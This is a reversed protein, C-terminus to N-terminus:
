RAIVAGTMSDRRKAAQRLVRSSWPERTGRGAVAAVQDQPDARGAHAAQVGDGLEVVSGADAATSRTSGWACRAPPSHYARNTSRGCSPWHLGGSADATPVFLASLYRGGRASESPAVAPGTRVVRAKRRATAVSWSRSATTTKPPTGVTGCTSDVSSGDCWRHSPMWASLKIGSMAPRLLWGPADRRRPLKLSLRSVPQIAPSFIM